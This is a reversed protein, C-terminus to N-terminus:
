GVASSDRRLAVIPCCCQSLKVSKEQLLFDAFISFLFLLAQLLLLLRTLEIKMSVSENDFPLVYCPPSHGHGDSLKM